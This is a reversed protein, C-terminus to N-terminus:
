LFKSIMILKRLDQLSALTQSTNAATMVRDVTNTVTSGATDTHNEVGQRVGKVM